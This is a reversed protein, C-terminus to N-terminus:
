GVNEELDRVKLRFSNAARTALEAQRCVRAIAELAANVNVERWARELAHRLDNQHERASRRVSQGNIQCVVWRLPARDRQSRRADRLYQAFHDLCRLDDRM